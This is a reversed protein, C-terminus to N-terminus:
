IHILSLALVVQAQLASGFSQGDAAAYRLEDNEVVGAFQKKQYKETYFLQDEGYPSLLGGVFSFLFMFTLVVLGVVAMQNRLFRKMVLASPSLVKVRRDDNLSLQEPQSENRKEKDM